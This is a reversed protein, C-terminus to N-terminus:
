ATPLVEFSSQEQLPADTVTAADVRSGPPGGAMWALVEDVEAAGGQVEAEVSGDHRNRVWGSVGAERAIIRMTYRYGVGQVDGRVIVHVRKM